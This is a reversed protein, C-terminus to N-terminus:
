EASGSDRPGGSRIWRERSSLSKPMVSYEDFVDSNPTQSPAVAPAASQIPRTAASLAAIPQRQEGDLERDVQRETTATTAPEDPDNGPSQQSGPPSQDESQTALFLVLDGAMFVVLAVVVLLWFRRRSRNPLGNPNM